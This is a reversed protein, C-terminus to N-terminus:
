RLEEQGRGNRRDRISVRNQRERSRLWILIGVLTFYGSKSGFSFSSSRRIINKGRSSFTCGHSNVGGMALATAPEIKQGPIGPSRLM